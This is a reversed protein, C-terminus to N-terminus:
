GSSYSQCNPILHTSKLVKSHAFEKYGRSVLHTNINIRQIFVFLLFLGACREEAEERVEGRRIGKEEQETTGVRLKVM